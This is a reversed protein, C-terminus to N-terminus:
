GGHEVPFYIPEMEDEDSDELEELGPGQQVEELEGMRVMDDDDGGNGVVEISDDLDIIILDSGWSSLSVTDSTQVEKAETLKYPPPHKPADSNISM